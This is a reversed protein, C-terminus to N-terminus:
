DRTDSQFRAPDHGDEKTGTHFSILGKLITRHYMEWSEPSYTKDVFSSALHIALETIEQMQEGSTKAYVVPANM